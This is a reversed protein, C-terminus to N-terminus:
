KNSTRVSSIDMSFFFNLLHEGLEMTVSAQLNSIRSCSMRVGKLVYFGVVVNELSYVHDKFIGVQGTKPSSSTIRKPYDNM